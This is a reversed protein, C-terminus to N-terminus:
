MYRDENQLQNHAPDHTLIINTTVGIRDMWNYYHKRGDSSMGMVGENM